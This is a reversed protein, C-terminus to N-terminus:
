WWFFAFYKKLLNSMAVAMEYWDPLHSINELLPLAQIM